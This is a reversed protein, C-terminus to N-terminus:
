RMYRKRVGWKQAWPSVARGGPDGPFPIPPIRGFATATVAVAATGAGRRICRGTATASVGVSASASRRRICRGTATATVSIGGTGAGTATAVTQGTATATVTVTASGAGRRVARGAAATTVAVAASGSTRRVARGSATATVSATATGGGRAIRRGTATATVAVAATGAGRVAGKSGTATATVSVTASGAGKATRHGTGTATVAVTASGSARRVRRGVATTTVAVSATGAGRRVRRGTATATVSVTATGAGRRVRRGTATATVSVTGTGAGTHTTSSPASYVAFVIPGAPASASSGSATASFTVPTTATGATVRAVVAALSSDNGVGSYRQAFWNPGEFTIGTASLAAGDYTYNDNNLGILAFVLDDPQMALSAPSTATVSTDATNDATGSVTVTDAAGGPNAITVVQVQYHDHGSISATVNSVDVATVDKEFLYYIGTGADVGNAGAGGTWSGLLTWGSPTTVAATDYRAFVCILQKDGVVHPGQRAPATTAGSSGRNINGASRVFPKTRATGTGERVRVLVIVGATAGAMTATVTPAGTSTGAQAWGTGIAMRMDNGSTTSSDADENVDPNTTAGPYTINAPGASYADTHHGLSYILIDDDTIGPDSDLVGGWSTTATNEARSAMAVDYAGTVSRCQIINCVGVNMGSVTIPVDNRGETGDAVMTWVITKITGSDVGEAGAGGSAEGLRTWGTPDTATATSPKMSLVLVQLDGAAPDEQVPNMIGGTDGNGNQGGPAFFGVQAM